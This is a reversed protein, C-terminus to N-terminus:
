TVKLQYLVPLGIQQKSTLPVIFFIPPYVTTKQKRLRFHIARRILKIKDGTLAM